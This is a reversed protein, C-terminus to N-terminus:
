NARQYHRKRPGSAVILLQGSLLDITSPEWVTCPDLCIELTPQKSDGSLRWRGVHKSAPKDSFVSEFGGDARFTEVAAAKPDGDSEKWTGVLEARRKDLPDGCAVLVLLAIARMAIV